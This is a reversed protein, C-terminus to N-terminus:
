VSTWWGGGRRITTEGRASTYVITCGCGPHRAFSDKAKAEELTMQNGCRSTCWECTDKRNHVGVGDYIRTVRVEMGAREHAEANLRIADDIIQMMNQKIDQTFGGDSVTLDEVLALNKAVEEARKENFIPKLPKLGVGAEQNVTEQAREALEVVYNYSKRLAKPILDLSEAEPIKGDPYKERVFDLVHKGYTKGFKAAIKNAESYTLNGQRVQSRLSKLLGDTSELWMMMEEHTM